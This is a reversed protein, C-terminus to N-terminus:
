NSSPVGKTAKRYIGFMSFLFAITWPIHLLESLGYWQGTSINGIHLDMASCSFSSLNGLHGLPYPGKSLLETEKSGLVSVLKHVQYAFLKSPQIQEALFKEWKFILRHCPLLYSQSQKSRSFVPEWRTAFMVFVSQWSSSARSHQKERHGPCFCEKETNSKTANQDRWRDGSWRLKWVKRMRAVLLANKRLLHFRRTISMTCIM